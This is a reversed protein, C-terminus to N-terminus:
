PLSRPKTNRTAGNSKKIRPKLVKKARTAPRVSRVPTEVNTSKLYGAPGGVDTPMLGATSGSKANWRPVGDIWVATNGDSRQVFGNLMSVPPEILQGDDNSVLGRKRANDMRQRQQASFFLRGELGKATDSKADPAAAIDSKQTTPPLPAAAAPTQSAGIMPVCLAIAVCSQALIIQLRM